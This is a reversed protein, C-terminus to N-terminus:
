EKAQDEKLYEEIAQSIQQWTKKNTVIFKQKRKWTGNRNFWLYTGIQRRGFSDVLLVALWWKDTKYITTGQHVTLSESVPFKEKSM